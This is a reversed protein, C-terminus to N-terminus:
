EPSSPALPLPHLNRYCLETFLLQIFDEELEFELARLYSQVLLEDTLSEM